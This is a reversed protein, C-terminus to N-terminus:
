VIVRSWTSRDCCLDAERQQHDRCGVAPQTQQGTSVQAQERFLVCKGAGKVGDCVRSLIIVFARMQIRSAYAQERPWPRADCMTMVGDDPRTFDPVRSKRPLMESVLVSAWRSGSKRCHAHSCVATGRGYGAESCCSHLTSSRLSCRNHDDSQMPDSRPHSCHHSAPQLPQLSNVIKYSESCPRVTSSM